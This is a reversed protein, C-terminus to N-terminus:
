HHSHIETNDYLPVNMQQSWIKARKMVVDKKKHKILQVIEEEDFKVFASYEDFTFSTTLETRSPSFKQRMKNKNVFLKEMSEYAVWQGTKFFFLSTYERFRRNALDIETGEVTTFVFLSGIVLTVATWPHESAILIAILMSIAAAFHFPWPLLNGFRIKIVQPTAVESNISM